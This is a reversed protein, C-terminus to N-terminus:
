YAMVLINPGGATLLGLLAGGTAPGDRIRAWVSVTLGPANNFTPALPKADLILGTRSPRYSGTGSNLFVDSVSVNESDGWSDFVVEDPGGASM